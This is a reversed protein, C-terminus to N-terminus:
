TTAYAVHSPVKKPLTRSRTIPRLRLPRLDKCVNFGKVHMLALHRILQSIDVSNRVGLLLMEEDEHSFLIIFDWSDWLVFFVGDMLILAGLEFTKRKSIFFGSM